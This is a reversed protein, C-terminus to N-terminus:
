PMVLAEKVYYDNPNLAHAKELLPLAQDNQAKLQYILGLAVFGWPESPDIEIARRALEEAMQLWEERHDTWGNFVDILYTLSCEAM